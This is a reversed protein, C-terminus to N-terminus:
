RRAIFLTNLCTLTADHGPFQDFSALQEATLFERMRHRLEELHLRLFDATRGDFPAQRDAATTRKRIDRLRVKRLLNGVWRSPSLRSAGGYRRVAEALTARQVAVEVTMPWNLLVHHLEDTELIAVFGGPRTVRRMEALVAEPRTLSILSQACWVLDFSRDPFPLRYANAEVYRVNTARRCTNEALRLFAPSLDAAVVEGRPGVRESLSASFFGDGCALDLVRGGAAVPLSTVCGALETAFARHYATLLLAYEPLQKLLPPEIVAGVEVGSFADPAPPTLKRM